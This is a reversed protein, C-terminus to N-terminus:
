LLPVVVIIIKKCHYWKVCMTKYYDTKEGELSLTLWEIMDSEKSGWPSYGVLSSQVHPEGPLLVPISQWKRRWPIKGLSQVQMSGEGPYGANFASEKSDREGKFLIDLFPDKQRLSSKQSHQQAHVCTHTYTCTHVDHSPLAGTGDLRWYSFRCPFYFFLDQPFLTPIVQNAM